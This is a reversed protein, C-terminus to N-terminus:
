DHPKVMTAPKWAMRAVNHKLGVLTYWGQMGNARGEPVRLIQPAGKVEETTGGLPGGNFILRFSM